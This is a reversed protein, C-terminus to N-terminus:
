RDLFELARTIFSHHHQFIGGHGADPYIILESGPIRRALDETNITPVMRDNEGNVVLVPQRIVSLDDPKQLGWGHIAKLQTRYGRFTITRDRGTTREKLRALFEGASRKGNPTRTFFLFVKPDQLTLLARALDRDSIRTVNEIGEGGAPGTGALILKRVLEPYRLTLSQAIMGGLSFGLIDVRDFGLARIFAVADDAMAGISDRVAGTSGGVGRYDFTIVRHKSAIGDVVRPDWNDLNASLHTFFVVPIGTRRGLDRYAIQVGEVTVTRTASDKYATVLGDGTGPQNSM